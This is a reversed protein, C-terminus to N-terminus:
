PKPRRLLKINQKDEYFAKLSIFRKADSTRLITIGQPNENFCYDLIDKYYVPITDPISSGKNPRIAIFPPFGIYKPIKFIIDTM